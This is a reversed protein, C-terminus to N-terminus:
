FVLCLQGQGCPKRSNASSLLGAGSHAALGQALGQHQFGPLTAKLSHAAPRQTLRSILADRFDSMEVGWSCVSVWASCRHVHFHACLRASKIQVLCDWKTRSGPYLEVLLGQTEREFFLLHPSIIECILQFTPHRQAMQELLLHLHRQATPGLSSQVTGEPMPLTM